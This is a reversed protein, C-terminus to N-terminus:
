KYDKGCHPCKEDKKDKIIFIKKCIRCQTAMCVPDIMVKNM